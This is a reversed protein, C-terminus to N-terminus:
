SLPVFRRLKGTGLRQLREVATVTVVASPFGADALARCLATRLGHVDIPSECVVRVDAGDATQWVQYEIVGAARGLPSRFVLPHVTCGGPYVFGDDSRGEIDDVRLSTAGCPCPGPLVTLPDSLEYRIIPQTTNYLVTLLAKDAPSGPPVPRGAADVPEILVLDDSMHIGRGASCSGGMLGETTGFGNLLPVPWVRQIMARVDRSLPESTVNVYRPAIRLRGAAAEHALRAIVSTYGMLVEPQAAELAAILRDLPWTAPLGLMDDGAFTLGVAMTAHTPKDAAIRVFRATPPLAAEAAMMFSFRAYSAYYTRWAPRDFVFIGRRGSSGGSALAHYEGLLYTDDRVTGLHEEVLARTLRRDTVIEDFHEMLDDKTMTPLGALDGLEVREPDIGGLRAAHWPSSALATRLLARLGSTQASRREACSWRLQGALEFLLTAGAARDEARREDDTM